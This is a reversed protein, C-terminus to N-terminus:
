CGESGPDVEAVLWRGTASFRLGRPFDFVIPPEDRSLGLTPLAQAEGTAVDILVAEGRSGAAVMSGDLSADIYWFGSLDPAVRRSKGAAVDLLEIWDGDPGCAGGRMLLSASDPSWHVPATNEHPGSIVALTGADLVVTDQRFLPSAYEGHTLLASIASRDRSVEVAHPRGVPARYSAESGTRPDAVVLRDDALTIAIREDELWYASWLEIPDIPGSGPTQAPLYSYTEDGSALDWVRLRPGVEQSVGLTMTGDFSLLRGGGGRSVLEITRADLDLEYIGALWTPPRGFTLPDILLLVRDLEPWRLVHGAVPLIGEVDGTALDLIVTVGPDSPGGGIGALVRDEFPSPTVGYAGVWRQVELTDLDVVFPWGVSEPDDGTVFRTEVEIPKLAFPVGPQPTPDSRPASPTREVTPASATGPVETRVVELTAPGTPEPASDACGTSLLVLVLVAVPVRM